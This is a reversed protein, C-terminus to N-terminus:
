MALDIEKHCTLNPCTFVVDISLSLCKLEIGTNVLLSKIFTFYTHPIFVRILGKIFIYDSRWDILVLENHGLQRCFYWSCLLPFFIIDDKDVVARPKSFCINQTTLIVHYVFKLNVFNFHIILQDSFDLSNPKITSSLIVDSGKLFMTFLVSNNM